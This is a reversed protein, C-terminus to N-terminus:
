ISTGVDEVTKFNEVTTQKEKNEEKIYKSILVGGAHKILTTLNSAVAPTEYINDQGNYKAVVNIVNICDDYM